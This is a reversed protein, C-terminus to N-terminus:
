PLPNGYDVYCVIICRSKICMERSNSSNSTVIPVVFMLKVCVRQWSCKKGMPIIHGYNQVNPFTACHSYISAM